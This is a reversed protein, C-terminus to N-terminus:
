DPNAPARDCAELVHRALTARSLGRRGLEANSLRSLHEYLAAAAYYDAFARFCAGGWGFIASLRKGLLPVARAASRPWGSIDRAASLRLLLYPM